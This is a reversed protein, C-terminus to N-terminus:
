YTIEKFGCPDYKGNVISILNFTIDKGTVFKEPLASSLIYRGYAAPAACNLTTSTSNAYVSDISGTTGAAGLFTYLTTSQNYNICAADGANYALKMEYSLQRCVKAVATDANRAMTRKDDISDAGNYNIEYANVLTNSSSTYGGSLLHISRNKTITSMQLSAVVGLIMSLFVFVLPM